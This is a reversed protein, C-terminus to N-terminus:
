AARRWRGAPDVDMIEWGDFEATPRVIYGDITDPDPSADVMARAVNISHRASCGIIVAREWGAKVPPLSLLANSIDRYASM